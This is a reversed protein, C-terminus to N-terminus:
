NYVKSLYVMILLPVQYDINLPNLVTKGHKQGIVMVHQSIVDFPVIITQSVISAAAGGCLARVRSDTVGNVLLVERM